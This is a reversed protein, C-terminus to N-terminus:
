EGYKGIANVGSDSIEIIEKTIEYGSENYEKIVTAGLSEIIRDKDQVSFMYCFDRVPLVAYIPWGLISSIKQKLKGSM